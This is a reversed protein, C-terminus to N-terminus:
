HARPLRVVRRAMLVGMAGLWALGAVAISGLLAGAPGLGALPGRAGLIVAVCLVTVAAGPALARAIEAARLGLARAMAALALAAMVAAVAIQVQAAEEGGLRGYALLGALLLAGGLLRLRFQAGARGTCVLTPELLITVGRLARAVCLLAVLTAAAAWSPDFVVSVIPPALLAVTAMAPWILAGLMTMNERWAQALAARDGSADLRSFRSWSIVTLPQSLVDAATNAIRAGGRYAGVAAPDLFAGLVLDAGYNSFMGVGVSGWMPLATGASARATERRLRWRPRVRVLAVSLALGTAVSAYRAAVLAGIGLGAAFGAWAVALAAIESALGYLAAARVRGAQVLRAENWAVLASAVPLPALSLLAAGVASGSGALLGAGAIVSAGAVGTALKLWFLTDADRDLDDSRLLAHYLGTYVATTAIVTAAWALAYVGFEALSLYRSAVMVLAFATAQGGIRAAVGVIYPQALRNLM